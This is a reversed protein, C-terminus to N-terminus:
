RPLKGTCELSRLARGSRGGPNGEEFRQRQAERMLRRVPERDGHERMTQVRWQRWRGPEECRLIRGTEMIRQRLLPPAEDVFVVDVREEGALHALTAAVRSLLRRREGAGRAPLIAVDLDSGPRAAGTARSGFLVLVSIGEIGGVAELIQRDVDRM